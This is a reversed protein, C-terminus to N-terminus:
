ITPLHIEFQDALLFFKYQLDQMESVSSYRHKFGCGTIAPVAIFLVSVRENVQKEKELEKRTDKMERERQGLQEELQRIEERLFRSDRTGTSLQAMQLLYFAM